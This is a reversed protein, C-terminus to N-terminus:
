APGDELWDLIPGWYEIQPRHFPETHGLRPVIISDAKCCAALEEAMGVPFLRDKEGHVVLIPLSCDRLLEEAHWLPPILHGLGVPLGISHAAARFSTFGACLVLRSPRIQRTVAAAIGSGLSFGLMAISKAGTLEQLSAFAAIADRECQAADVRGTSRGYGSYDFVLSAAGHDALLRQVPVWHDIIEAIGHCILVVARAPEKAPRVLVADLTNRGSAIRHRSAGPGLPEGERLPEVRRLVWDRALCFRSIGTVALSFTLRHSRM